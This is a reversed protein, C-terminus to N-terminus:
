PATASGRRQRHRRTNRLSVYAAGGVALIVSTIALTIGIRQLPIQFAPPVSEGASGRAEGGRESTNAEFRRDRAKVGGYRGPCANGLARADSGCRLGASRVPCWVQLSPFNKRM